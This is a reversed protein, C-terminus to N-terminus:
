SPFISSMAMWVQTVSTPSRRDAAVTVRHKRSSDATSREATLFRNIGNLGASSTRRGRIRWCSTVSSRTILRSSRRPRSSGFTGSRCRAITAVAAPAPSRHPSAAPSRISAILRSRPDSSTTRVTTSTLPFVDNLGKGFVATPRRVTGIGPHSTRITRSCRSRQGVPSPAGTKTLSTPAGRRRVKNRERMQRGDSTRCSQEALDHAVPREDPPPGIVFSDPMLVLKPSVRSGDPVDGPTLGASDAEM